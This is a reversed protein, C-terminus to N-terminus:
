RAEAAALADRLASAEAIADYSFLAVGGAAASRARTLQAVARSPEAAFLWTGLGIWIRDHAPEGAFAAVQQAFLREDRTYLMPIAFELLGDALWGRWDQFTSLYAREPYALVAASLELDPRAARAAERIRSVVRTVQGRRWEDWADGNEIRDGFPAELGTEARFRARTAAGHGFSLGVGYRTGPSFPLVDPYRIYDLHLGDLQPHTAVLGAFVEALHEAVGPAGPDIWVGPTGMRVLKRDPQPFDFAPLDLISRGRQDMQAAARGLKRLLPAEGNGALSLVNVWAHVRLGEAHAREVLDRLPERGSRARAAEFPATDALPSDFWARGGRYVQVLLDTVGLARAAGLLADVRAPDDLVRVTGECPIWLARRPRSTSGPAAADAATASCPALAVGAWVAALLLVLLRRFRVSTVPVRL